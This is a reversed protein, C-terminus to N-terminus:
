LRGDIFLLLRIWLNMFIVTVLLIAILSLSGVFLFTGLGSGDVIRVIENM